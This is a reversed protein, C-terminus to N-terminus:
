GHKKKFIRVKKAYSDLVYITNKMDVAIDANSEHSSLDKPTAVVSEFVGMPNYVKVRVIGKEATVFYGNSLLAMQTPGCCGCFREVATGSKGWASLLEGNPRYNEISHRGPNVVWVSGDRGVALDMYPSPVVFGEIGQATDRVGIKGLLQGDSAYRWVIKMGADAAYMSEDDFAVSTIYSRKGKFEFTDVPYLTPTLIYAVNRSVAWLQEQKDFGMTQASVSLNVTATVTGTSDYKDISSDAAVYLENKYITIARPWERNIPIHAIQKYGVLSSDIEALSDLSYRFPQDAGSVDSSRNKILAFSLPDILYWLAAGILLFLLVIGFIIKKM